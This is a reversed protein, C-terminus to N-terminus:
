SSPFETTVVLNGKAIGFGILGSNLSFNNEIKVRANFGLLGEPGQGLFELDVTARGLFERTETRAPGSFTSIDFVGPKAFEVKFFASGVFSTGDPNGGTLLGLLIDAAADGILARGLSGPGLLDNVNKTAKTLMAQITKRLNNLNPFQALKENLQKLWRTASVLRSLLDLLTLNKKNESGTFKYIATRGRPDKFQFGLITESPVIFDLSEFLIFLEPAGVELDKLVNKLAGKSEGVFVKFAAALAGSLLPGAKTMLADFTQELLNAPVKEVKFKLGFLQRCLVIKDADVVVHRAKISAFACRFKSEFQEIQNSTFHQGSSKELAELVIRGAQDGLGHPDVVITVGRSFRGSPKQRDFERQIAAGINTARATSLALNRQASGTASAEGFMHITATKDAFKLAEIQAILFPVVSHAIFDTHQPRVPEASGVGFNTFAVVGNVVAIYKTPPLDPFKIDTEVVDVM